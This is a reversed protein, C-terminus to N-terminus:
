FGQVVLNNTKLTAYEDQTMQMFQAAMEDYGIGRFVAAAAPIIIAYPQELAIWSDSNVYSTDPNNYIGFLFFQNQEKTKIQIQTGARYYIDVRDLGYRDIVDEPLIPTLFNSPVNMISDYKRIYKIARFNPFLTGYDLSQYFDMTDFQVGTEYIDKDFYDSQHAKLTAQKVALTTLSVLDPRDTITYVESILNNLTAIAM